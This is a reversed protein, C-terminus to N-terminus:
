QQQQGNSYTYPYQWPHHHSPSARAGNREITQRLREIAVMLDRRLLTIDQQTVGRPEQQEANAEAEAEAEQAEAESMEPDMMQQRNSSSPQRRLDEEFFTFFAQTQAIAVVLLLLSITSTKM